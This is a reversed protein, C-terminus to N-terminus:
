LIAGRLRAFAEDRAVPCMRYYARARLESRSVHWVHGHRGNSDGDEFLVTRWQCVITADFLPEGITEEWGILTAPAHHATQMLIVTDVLGRRLLDHCAVFIRHNLNKKRSFPPNSAIALAGSIRVAQELNAVISGDLPAMIAYLDAASKDPDIDTIRVAVGPSLAMLPRALQGRGGFPDLVIPPLRIGLRELGIALAAVNERPTVYDDNALRARGSEGLEADM